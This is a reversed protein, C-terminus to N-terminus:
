DHQLPTACSPCFSQGTSVPAGCSPCRLERMGRVAYLVGAGLASFVVGMGGLILPLLFFSFNYGVDFHMDVPDAPNYRILHRSGPAYAAVKRQMVSHSSSSYSSSAPVTYEKGAVTYRFDIAAKFMVNGESDRSRVVESKVVEAEVEPWSKLITYRSQGTWAAISLLVLGVVLFIMGVLRYLGKGEIAM